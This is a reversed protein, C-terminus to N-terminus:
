EQKPEQEEDYDDWTSEVSDDLAKIFSDDKMNEPDNTGEKAIERELRILELELKRDDNEIKHYSDLYRRKAEQIKTLAQEFRIILLQTNEAETSALTGAKSMKMITMDKSEKLEKIKKLMRYERVKLIKIEDELAKKKNKIPENFVELEDDSFCGEFKSYAGTVVANKNNKTGHGGKNGITGKQARKKWNNKSIQYNLQGMTIHHKTIIDKKLMGSNYDKEIEEINM